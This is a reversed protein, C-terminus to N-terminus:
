GVAATNSLWVTRESECPPSTPMVGALLGVSAFAQDHDIREAKPEPRRSQAPPGALVRLAEALL